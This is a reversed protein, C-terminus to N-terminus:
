TLIGPKPFQLRRFLIRRTASASPVYESPQFRARTDILRLGFQPTDRRADRLSKGVRISIEATMGPRMSKPPNHVEVYTGYEKASSGFWNGNAIPYDNVRKITGMLDVGPLADLKIKVPLGEQVFDVRSENIKAKVQMKQPDPLRIIVQRERILTGEQIIIDTGNRGGSENAYVVQGAAPAKIVCKAIQSEILEMKTWSLTKEDSKLKAEAIKIDADFQNAMKATFRLV